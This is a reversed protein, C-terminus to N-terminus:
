ALEDASNWRSDQSEEERPRKIFYHNIKGAMDAVSFVM